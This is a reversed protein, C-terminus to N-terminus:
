PTTEVRSWLPELIERRRLADYHMVSNEHAFSSYVPVTFMCACHAEVTIGGIVIKYNDNESRLNKIVNKLLLKRVTIIM